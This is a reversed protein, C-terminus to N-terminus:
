QTKRSASDRPIPKQTFISQSLITSFSDSSANFFSQNGLKRLLPVVFELKFPIFHRRHCPWPYIRSCFSYWNRGNWSFRNKADTVDAMVATATSINGGMIGGIFRSLILVTFSGAFFWMGYSLALASVSLLLVPRRGIRDSIAGWLPAAIFQLLSYLAGLAGGFLVVTSFSNGTSTLTTLSNFILRLFLNDGDVDLYYQALSPFLPFIISFGILDLFLTLFIIKQAQRAEPSLPPTKMTQKPMDNKEKPSLNYEGEKKNPSTITSQIWKAFDQCWSEQQNLCPILTIEGGEKSLEDKLETGIEDITELCDSM